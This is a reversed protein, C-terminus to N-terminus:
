LVKYGKLSDEAQSFVQSDAYKSIFMCRENEVNETGFDSSEVGNGIQKRKKGLEISYPLWQLDFRTAAQQQSMRWEFVTVIRTDVCEM